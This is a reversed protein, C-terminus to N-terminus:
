DIKWKTLTQVNETANQGTWLFKDGGLWSSQIFRYGWHPGYHGFYRKSYRPPRQWDVLWAHCAASQLRRRLFM